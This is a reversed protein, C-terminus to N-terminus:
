PMNINFSYLYGGKDDYSVGYVYTEDSSICFSSLEKNLKITKVYDGNWDYVEITNSFNKNKDKITRGSYLLYIYKESSSVALFGTVNNETFNASIRNTADCPECEPFMEYRSAVISMDKNDGNLQFIELVRGYLSAFVFKNKYPHKLMSGQYVLSKQINSIQLDDQPYCVSAMYLSDNDIISIRTDNSYNFGVFLSDNLYIINYLGAFRYNNYGYSYKVNGEPSIYLLNLKCLARDYIFITDNIIRMREPFILDKPGEGKEGFSAMYELEPLRFVSYMYQNSEEKVIILSDLICIDRPSLLSDPLIYEHSAYIYLNDKRNKQIQKCSFFIM